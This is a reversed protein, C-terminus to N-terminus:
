LSCGAIENRVVTEITVDSLSAVPRRLAHSATEATNNKESIHLAFVHSLGTWALAELGSAAAANSLHGGNGAIRRKLFPPYPGRQLMTLDHNTEIGLAHCGALADFSEDTITGTDTMMGIRAGRRNQFTFGASEAADHSTAFSRVTLGALSFTDNRGIAIQHPIDALPTVAAQLTGATAMVPVNLKRALVRAGRIHDTHEHTILIAEIQSEDLGAARSRRAIERACIGADVLVARGSAEILAANGSSGSALIILRV